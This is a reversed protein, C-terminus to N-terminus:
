LIMGEPGLDGSRDAGGLVIEVVVNALPAARTVARLDL